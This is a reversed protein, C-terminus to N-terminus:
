GTLKNMEDREREREREGEKQLKENQKLYLIITRILYRLSIQTTM